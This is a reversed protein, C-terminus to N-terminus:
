FDVRVLQEQGVEEDQHLNGMPIEEVLQEVPRFVCWCLWNKMECIIKVGYLRIFLLVWLSWPVMVLTLTEWSRGQLWSVCEEEKHYEETPPCAKMELSDKGESTLNRNKCWDALVQGCSGWDRSIIEALEVAFNECVLQGVVMPVFLLGPFFFMMLM